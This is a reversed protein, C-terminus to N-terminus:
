KKIFLYYFNICIIASNTIVIPWSTSLMFGYVVFLGCGVSNIIRLNKVEKMIFSVLLAFMAAYGVWDTLSIGLIDM